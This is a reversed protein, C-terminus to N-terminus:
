ELRQEPPSVAGQCSLRFHSPSVGYFQKFIRSFHHPAKFGVQEAIAAIPSSSNTLSRRAAALRIQLLYQYPSQGTQRHFYESFHTVSMSVHRALESVRLEPDAYHELVYREIEQVMKGRTAPYPQKKRNAMIEVQRALLGVFGLLYARILVEAFPAKYREEHLIRELADTPSGGINLWVAPYTYFGERAGRFESVLIGIDTAAFIVWLFQYFTNLDLPSEHHRCGPPVLCFEGASMELDRTDLRMRCSGTLLFAMEFSKHTDKIALTPGTTVQAPRWETFPTLIFPYRASSASNIAQRTADLLQQWSM